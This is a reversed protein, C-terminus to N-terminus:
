LERKEERRESGPAAQMAPDGRPNETAAAKNHCNDSVKIVFV